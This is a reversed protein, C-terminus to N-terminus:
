GVRRPGAAAHELRPAMESRGALPQPSAKETLHPVGGNEVWDVGDTTIAYLGQNTTRLLERERLYWIAFETEDIRVQIARAIEARGLEPNRPRTIMVDYLTSMIAQRLRKQTLVDEIGANLEVQVTAPDLPEGELRVPLVNGSSGGQPGRAQALHQEREKDYAARRKPDALTRYAEKVLEYKEPDSQQENKKGYRTLMLRVAWEVMARDAQPSVMLFEYYDVFPGNEM